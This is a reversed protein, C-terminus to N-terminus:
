DLIISQPDLSIMHKRYIWFRSSMGGYIIAQIDSLNCTASSEMWYHDDDVEHIIPEYKKGLKKAELKLRREELIDDPTIEYRYSPKSNLKRNTIKITKGDEGLQIKCEDQNHNM